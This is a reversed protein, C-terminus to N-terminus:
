SGDCGSASAGVPDAGCRVMASTFAAAARSIAAIAPTDASDTRISTRMRSHHPHPRAFAWIVRSQNVDVPATAYYRGDELATAISRGFRDFAVDIMDPRYADPM